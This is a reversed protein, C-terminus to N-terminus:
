IVSCIWRWAGSPSAGAAGVKAFRDAYRGGIIPAAAAETAQHVLVYSWARAAGATPSSSSM